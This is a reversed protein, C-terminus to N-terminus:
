SPVYSLYSSRHVTGLTSQIGHRWNETFSQLRPKAKMTEMGNSDAWEADCVQPPFGCYLYLPVSTPLSPIYYPPLPLSTTTSPTRTAVSSHLLLIERPLGPLSTQRMHWLASMSRGETEM